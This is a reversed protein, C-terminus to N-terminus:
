PEWRDSVFTVPNISNQPEARTNDSIFAEIASLLVFYVGYLESGTLVSLFFSFGGTSQPSALRAFSSVPQGRSDAGPKGAAPNKHVPIHTTEKPRCVILFSFISFPPISTWVLEVSTTCPDDGPPGLGERQLAKGDWQTALALSSSNLKGHEPGGAHM